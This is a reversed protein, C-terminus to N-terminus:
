FMQAARPHSVSATTPPPQFISIWTGYWGWVRVVVEEVLEWPYFCVKQWSAFAYFAPRNHSSLEVESLKWCSYECSAFKLNPTHCWLFNYWFYDRLFPKKNPFCVRALTSFLGSISCLFHCLLETFSRLHHVRTVCVCHCLMRCRPHTALVWKRKKGKLKLKWKTKKEKEGDWRVGLGPSAEGGRISASESLEEKMRGRANNNYLGRAVNFDNWCYCFFLRFFMRAAFLLQPSPFISVACACLFRHREEQHTTFIWLICSFRHQIVADAFLQKEAWSGRGSGLFEDLGYLEPQIEVRFPPASTHPHSAKQQSFHPLRYDYPFFPLVAYSAMPTHTHM